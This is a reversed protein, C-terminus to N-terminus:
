TRLLANGASQAASRKASRKTGGPGKWSKPGGPLTVTCTCAFVRKHPPGSSEYSYVPEPYHRKQCWQNLAAIPNDQEAQASKPERSSQEPPCVPIQELLDACSLQEAQKQKGATAPDSTYTQGKWELTAVIRFRRKHDPGSATVQFKPGAAGAKQCLENLKGKPNEALLADQGQAAKDEVLPIEVIVSILSMATRQMAEVKNSGQCPESIFDRSQHTWLAQSTHLDPSGPAPTTNSWVITDPSPWGCLNHALELSALALAPESQLWRLAGEKLALWLRETKADAFLIRVIDGIEVLHASIRRSVADVRERSLPITEDTLWIIFRSFDGKELAAISKSSATSLRNLIAKSFSQTRRDREQCEQQNLHQAISGLEERKYPSSEGRLTAALIRQNVLDAYRRIPSTMHAYADLNLGFHGECEVGYCARKILHGVEGMLQQLIEPTPDVLLNKFHELYDARTKEPEEISHNRYLFEAGTGRLYSSLLRNNLIMLEQVIIYAQAYQGAPLKVIAGEENAILGKFTDFVVLAGRERRKLLLSHALEYVEKWWPHQSNGNDELIEHVQQHSFRANSVFQASNVSFSRLELCNDLEILSTFSGRNRDPLLSLSGESLQRPLMPTSGTAHYRTFARERAKTDIEGGQEQSEPIKSAVDTISVKITWGDSHKEVWFADDLDRSTPADLTIGRVVATAKKRREQAV